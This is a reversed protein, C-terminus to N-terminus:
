EYHLLYPLSPFAADILIQGFCLEKMLDGAYYRRYEEQYENLECHLFVRHEAVPQRPYGPYIEREDHRPAQRNHHSHSPLMDILPFVGLTQREGSKHLQYATHYPNKESYHRDRYDDILRGACQECTDTDECRYQHQDELIGDETQHRSHLKGLIVGHM